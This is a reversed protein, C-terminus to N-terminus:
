LGDTDPGQRPVFGLSRARREWIQRALVQMDTAPDTEDVIEMGLLTEMVDEMTLIGAMGGYEDIVLAIHTREEVLRAFLRPLNATESVTLVDRRFEQVPEDSRGDVMAALVDDKLVFGIVDDKNENRYLPVRSFQVVEDAASFEGVTQDAPVAAVVTRPTMIDKARVSDFALLNEIITSESQNIVGEKASIRTLVKFDGRSLVDDQGAKKIPRTIWQSLWVLPALATIVVRLCYVTFPALPRWYTAGLTKPVLESAILIAATMGAPIVFATLLPNTDAWIATAQSGVGIAGVTHAITNLTLIAALPRDINEKYEKLQRGLLNGRESEVKVYTPSASLLVAEWLSCLFSFVIAGALFTLLLSLM